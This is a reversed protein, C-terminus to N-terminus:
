ASSLNVPMIVYLFDDGTRIMGPRNPEKMAFSVEEHHIVRLVELLFVPNFGIDIAEGHFRAPMAITAEGQEPARSSLTLSGDSFSLRVGKSEENTLLSARRLAGLFETTNLEATRDLDTPVVDQYKPFQGEVLNTSVKARGADIALQNRTMRVGTRTAPDVTLSKLLALAKIPVIAAPPASAGSALLPGRAVALRRGDTAALTLTNGKTEWLV